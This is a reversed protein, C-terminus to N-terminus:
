LTEKPKRAPRVARKGLLGEVHALAEAAIDRPTRGPVRILKVRGPERRALDLFGRRVRRHYPASSREMRDLGGKSRRARKLGEAVPLDFLLTLDPRLGDAAIRCVTRVERLPLARGAGQYAITSDSFRDCLV